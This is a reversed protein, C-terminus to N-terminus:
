HLILLCVNDLARHIRWECCAAWLLSSVPLPIPPTRATASPSPLVCLQQPAFGCLRGGGRPILVELRAQETPSLYVKAGADGILSHAKKLLDLAEKGEGEGSKILVELRAQETPSLYVKAGADGRLSRGKKLLDNWRFLRRRPRVLSQIQGM